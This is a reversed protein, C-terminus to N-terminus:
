ARLWAKPTLRFRKTNPPTIQLFNAPSAILTQAMGGGLMYLVRDPNRLLVKVHDPEHESAVEWRDGLDIELVFDKLEPFRECAAQWEDVNSM